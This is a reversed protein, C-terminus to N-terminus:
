LRSGLGRETEGATNKKRRGGLRGSNVPDYHMGPQILSILHQGDDVYVYEIIVKIGSAELGEKAVKGWYIMLIRSCSMTVPMGIPGGEAELYTKGGFIYTQLRWCAKVIVELVKGMMRRKTDRDSELDYRFKWQGEEGEKIGAGRAEKGGITPKRGRSGTRILCWVEM